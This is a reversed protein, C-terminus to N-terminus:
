AVLRCVEPEYTTYCEELTPGPFYYVHTGCGGGRGGGGVNQRAAM